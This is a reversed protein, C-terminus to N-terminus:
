RQVMRPIAANGGRTTRGCASRLAVRERGVPGSVVQMPATRDDRWAGVIIRHMGSRGTPFLSAHWGFLREAEASDARQAGAVLVCPLILLSTLFTVVRSNPFTMLKTM